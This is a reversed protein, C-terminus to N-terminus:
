YEIPLDRRSAPLRTLMRCGTPTVAVDDEIRVGGTGPLYIGPEITGVMGPVLRQQNGEVFYPEEHIALGLGHGTRHIFYPGFGREEIVNRAARDVDAMSAGPRVSEIAADHAALVADYVAALDRPWSGICFTRTIDSMYGRYAAGFDMLVLGSSQIVDDGPRAHPLATRPGCLVTTEFSPGDGGLSEIARDLLRAVKKESMGPRIDRCASEFAECAIDAARQLTEMEGEDKIVRLSNLLPRVDRTEAPILATAVGEYTALSIAAKEVGLRGGGTGLRRAVAALIEYPNEADSWANIDRVWGTGAAEVDLAPVVFAPPGEQPILLGTFREHPNTRWGTLYYLNVPDTILAAELEQEALMRQIQACRGRFVTTEM